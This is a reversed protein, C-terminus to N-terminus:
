TPYNWEPRVEPIVSGTNLQWRPDPHILEGPTRALRLPRIGDATQMFVSAGKLIYGTGEPPLPPFLEIYDSYIWMHPKKKLLIWYANKGDGSNIISLDIRRRATEKSFITPNNFWNFSSDYKTIDATYPFGVVGYFTGKTNTVKEGTLELINGYGTILEAKWEGRNCWLHGQQTVLNFAAETQIKLLHTRVEPTVFITDGKLISPNDWDNFSCANVEIPRPDAFYDPIRSCIAYQANKAQPPQPPTPPTPDVRVSQRHIYGGKATGDVTQLKFWNGFVEGTFYTNNPIFGIVDGGPTSRIKTIELTTGNIIM